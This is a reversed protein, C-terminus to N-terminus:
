LVADALNDSDLLSHAEGAFSVQGERLVYVRTAIRLVARVRQEVILISTNLEHSIRCVWDFTQGVLGPALGLSPEDLLLLCPSLVLANSLALMQREGGSLSGARQRLRSRLAPFMGLAREIGEAMAAASLTSGGVDLNEEVTLNGFVRGGQPVYAVQARLLRRPSPRPITEGNLVIAGSWLPVVGVIARLLTSKGAGNRGLVAVIEGREVQLDIGNLIQREGYGAVAAKVTLLAAAADVM